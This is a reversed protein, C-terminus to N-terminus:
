DIFGTHKVQLHKADPLAKLDDESTIEMLLEGTEKFRFLKIYRGSKSDWFKVESKPKKGYKYFKSVFSDTKPSYAVLLGGKLLGGLVVKHKKQKKGKTYTVEYISGALLSNSCILTVVLIKLLQIM